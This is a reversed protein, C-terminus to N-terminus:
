LISYVKKEIVQLQFDMQLSYNKYQLLSKHKFATLINKIFLILYM